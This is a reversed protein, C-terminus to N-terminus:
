ESLAATMFESEFAIRTKEGAAAPGAGYTRDAGCAYGIRMLTSVCLWGVATEGKEPADVPEPPSIRSSPAVPRPDLGLIPRAPKMVDSRLRSPKRWGHSSFSPAVPASWTPLGLWTELARSMM